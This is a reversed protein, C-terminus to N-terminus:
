EGIKDDPHMQNYMDILNGEEPVVHEFFDEHIATDAVIEKNSFAAFVKEEEVEVSRLIIMMNELLYEYNEKSALSILEMFDNELIVAYRDQNLEYVHIRYKWEKGEIDYYTGFDSFLLREDDIELTDSMENDYQSAVVQSVKLNLMMKHSELVLLSGLETSTKVGVNPPLYYKFFPKNHNTSVPLPRALTQNLAESFNVAETQCGSVLFLSMLLLALKRLRM